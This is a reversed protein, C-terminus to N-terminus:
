TSVKWGADLLENISDFTAVLEDTEYNYIKYIYGMADSVTIYGFLSPNNIDQMLCGKNEMKPISILFAVMDVRRLIDETLVRQDERLEIRQNQM